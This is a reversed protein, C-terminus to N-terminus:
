VPRVVTAENCLKLVIVELGIVWVVEIMMTGEDDLGFRLIIIEDDSQIRFLDIRDINGVKSIEEREPPENKDIPGGNLRTVVSSGIFFLLEVVKIVVTIVIEEM